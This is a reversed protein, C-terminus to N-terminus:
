VYVDGCLNGRLRGLEYVTAPMPAQGVARIRLGPEKQLNVKGQLCEPCHDGSKLSGHPM